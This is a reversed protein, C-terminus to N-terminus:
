RIPAPAAGVVVFAVAAALAVAFGALTRPATWGHDPAEIITYVLAGLMVVSLLLGGRDLRTGSCARRHPCSCWRVSRPRRPRDTGAGSVPQGM